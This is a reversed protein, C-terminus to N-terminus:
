PHAAAFKAIAAVVEDEAGNYGHYSLSSCPPLALWGGKDIVVEAKDTDPVSTLAAFVTSAIGSPSSPCTDGAHWIVLTPVTILRLGPSLTLVDHHEGGPSANPMTVSSLLVVGKLPLASRAFRAALNVVSITGNATAVAWVPVMPWELRVLEIAKVLLEANEQTHRQNTFGNPEPFMPDSDLMAVNFGSRLFRYASRIVFSQQQEQVDGERTLGLAGNSGPLLLVSAFAAPADAPASLPRVRAVLRSDITIAQPPTALAPTTTFLLLTFLLARCM